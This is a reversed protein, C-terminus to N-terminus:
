DHSSCELREAAKNPDRVVEAKFLLTATVVSYNVTSVNPASRNDLKSGLGARQIENM